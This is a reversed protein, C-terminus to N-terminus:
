RRTRLHPCDSYTFHHYSRNRQVISLIRLVLAQAEAHRGQLARLLALRELASANNPTRAVADEILPEAERLRRTALFYRVDPAQDQGLLRRQTALGDEPRNILYFENVFTRKMQQNTPDLDIARRNPEGGM